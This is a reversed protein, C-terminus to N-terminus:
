VCRGCAGFSLKEVLESVVENYESQSIGYKALIEPTSDIGTFQMNACAYEEAGSGRDYLDGFDDWEAEIGNIEFVDPSCLFRLVDLNLKM